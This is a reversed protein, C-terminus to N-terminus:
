GLVGKRKNECFFNRDWQNKPLVARADVRVRQESVATGTLPPQLPGAQCAPARSQLGPSRVVKPQGLLKFVVTVHAKVHDSM